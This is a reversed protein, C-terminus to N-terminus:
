RKLPQEFGLDTALRILAEKISLPHRNLRQLVKENTLEANPRVAPLDAKNSSTPKIRNPNYGFSDAIERAWEYRNIFESGVIHYIGTEEAEILLSIFICLDTLLIPNNKWDDFVAVDHKKSLQGLVWTVMTHPQWLEPFGYPQDTRVIIHNINSRKIVTEGYAKTKGYTNIPDPNSDEDYPGKDGSFVFSSSLFVLDAQVQKCAKVLYETGLANVRFAAKPSEECKDADTLAATHIVVDPSTQRLVREVNEPQTINMSFYPCGEFVVNTEHITYNVRHGRNQLVEVLKRGVFGSGGTVLIHM